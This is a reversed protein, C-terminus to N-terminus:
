HREECEECICDVDHGIGLWEAVEEHSLERSWYLHIVLRDFLALKFISKM